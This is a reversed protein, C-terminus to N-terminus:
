IHPYQHFKTDDLCLVLSHPLALKPPPSWRVPGMKCQLQVATIVLLRELCFNLSIDCSVFSSARTWLYLIEDTAKNM